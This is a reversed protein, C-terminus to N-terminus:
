VIITRLHMLIVIIVLCTEHIPECVQNQYSYIARLSISLQFNFNLMLTIDHLQPKACKPM